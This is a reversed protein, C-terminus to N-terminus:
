GPGFCFFSFGWELQFGNYLLTKPSSPPIDWPHSQDQDQLWLRPLLSQRSGLVDREPQFNPALTCLRGSSLCSLNQASFHAGQWSRGGGEERRPPPWSAPAALLVTFDWGPTQVGVGSLAAERVHTVLCYPHRHVTSPFGLESTWVAVDPKQNQQGAFFNHEPYFAGTDRIGQVWGLGGLGPTIDSFRPCM